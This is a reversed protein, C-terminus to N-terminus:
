KNAPNRVARAICMETAAPEVACHRYTTAMDHFGSSSMSVKGANANFRAM